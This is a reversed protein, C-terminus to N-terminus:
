ARRPTIVSMLGGSRPGVRLLQFTTDQWARCNGVHQRCYACSALVPILKSVVISLGIGPCLPVTSCRARRGAQSYPLLVTSERIVQSCSGHATAM